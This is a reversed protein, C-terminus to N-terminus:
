AHPEDDKRPFPALRLRVLLRRYADPGIDDALLLLPRLGRGSWRLWLALASIRSSPCLEAQTTRGDAEVLLWRGDPQCVIRSLRRSGAIWGIAAFGAMFCVVLLIAVLSYAAPPLDIALLAAPVLLLTAAVIRREGRREAIDITLTPLGTSSM